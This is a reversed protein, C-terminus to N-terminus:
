GLISYGFMQNQEFDNNVPDGKDKEFIYWDSGGHFYHLYAVKEEQPIEETEYTAPMKTIIGELHELVDQFEKINQKVVRQQSIPMFPKVSAPITPYKLKEEKEFSHAPRAIIVHEKLFNKDEATPGGRDYKKTLTLM